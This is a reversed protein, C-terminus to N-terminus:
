LALRLPSWVSSEDIFSEVFIGTRRSLVLRRVLLTLPGKLRVLYSLLKEM